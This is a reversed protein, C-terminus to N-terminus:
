SYSARSTDQCARRLFSKVWTVRKRLVHKRQVKQGPKAKNRDRFGSSKNNEKTTELRSSENKTAGTRARQSGLLSKCTHSLHPSTQKPGPAPYHAPRREGNMVEDGKKRDAKSSIWNAGCLGQPLRKQGCVDQGACPGGSDESFTLAM